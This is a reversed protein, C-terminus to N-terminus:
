PPTITVELTTANISVSGNKILVHTDTVLSQNVLNGSTTGDDTPVVSVTNDDTGPNSLSSITTKGAAIVGGGSDSLQVVATSNLCDDHIESITVLTINGSEDTTTSDGVGDPDCSSVDQSVSFLDAASLAGLSAALGLVAAALTGVVLLTLLMKGM